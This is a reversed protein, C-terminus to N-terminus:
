QLRSRMAQKLDEKLDRMNYPDLLVERRITDRTAQPQGLIGGGPVGSWSSFLHGLDNVATEGFQRAIRIETIMRQGVIALLERNLLNYNDKTARFNRGAREGM